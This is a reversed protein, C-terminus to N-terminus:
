VRFFRIAALNAVAAFGLLAALPRRAATLDSGFTILQHLADMAWGTPLCHALFQFTEPVIELPWWCGGLAAMVMSVLVCLGVVKDESRLISGLLIGISAAVWAYIALVALIGLLNDGLNVSFLFRGALLLVAIQIGALLLLGYIKGGILAANTVPHVQMRRLVGSRREWALTVGGFTLLNMMLYMVLIGPLSFNFGTPIPKRGAHRADLRVRAERHRVAELADATPTTDTDAGLGELLHSNLAITARLVRMEILASSPDDTGGPTFFVVRGQNGAIVTDTFNTPIRIGRRAQDSHPHSPLRVELGQEGLEALFAVGLFGTDRNDVLLLPRTTRPGGPGRNAFGMFYVFALPMVVLWIWSSRNRLFLRLDHHGILFLHRM